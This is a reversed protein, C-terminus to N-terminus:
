PLLRISMCLLGGWGRISIGSLTGHLDLSELQSGRLPTLTLVAELIEDDITLGENEFCGLCLSRLNTSHCDLVPALERCADRGVNIDVIELSELCPLLALAQCASAFAGNDMNVSHINISRVSTSMALLSVVHEGTFGGWDYMSLKSLRHNNRFFPALMEVSFARGTFNLGLMLSEISRNRGLFHCFSENKDRTGDEDEENSYAGLTLEKLETSQGIFYGM